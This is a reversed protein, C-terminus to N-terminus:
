SLSPYSFSSPPQALASESPVRVFGCLEVIHSFRYLVSYELLGSRPPSRLQPFSEKRGGFLTRGEGGSRLAPIALFLLVSLLRPARLGLPFVRPPHRPSIEKLSPCGSASFYGLCNQSIIYKYKQGGRIEGFSFPHLLRLIGGWVGGGGSAFDSILRPKASVMDGSFQKRM